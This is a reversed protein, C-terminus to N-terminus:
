PKVHRLKAVHGDGYLCNSHVTGHASKWVRNQGEDIVLEQIDYLAYFKSPDAVTSRSYYRFSRKPDAGNSSGFAASFTTYSLFKHSNFPGEGMYDTRAHQDLPCFLVGDDGLYPKLARVFAEDGRLKIPEVIDVDPLPPSWGDHDGEYISWAHDIQKLNSICVSDKAARVARPALAAIIGAVIAIIACVILVETLTFAPRFRNM